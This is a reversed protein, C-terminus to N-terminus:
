SADEEWEAEWDIVGGTLTASTGALNIAIEQATPRLVLAQDSNQCFNFELKGPESYNGQALLLRAYAFQKATADITPNGTYVALTGSAAPSGSDHPVMDPATATTGGSNAVTHKMLRVPVSVAVTAGSGWLRLKKVRLTKTASCKLIVLDTPTAAIAGATITGGAHYTNRSVQDLSHVVTHDAGSAAGVLVPFTKTAGSADQYTSTTPALAM